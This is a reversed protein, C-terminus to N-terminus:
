PKAAPPPEPKSGALLKTLAVARERNMAALIAGIQREKMCAFVGRVTADDVRDLIPGAEEPKMSQYVKTVAVSCPGEAGPRGGALAELRKAESGLLQELGKLGAERVAVAAERRELEQGRQRAAELLERFGRSKKFLEAPVGTETPGAPKGGGAEAEAFAPSGLWWVGVVALKLMLSALVAGRIWRM